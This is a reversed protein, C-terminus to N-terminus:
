ASLRKRGKLRRARLVARGAKDSMRHRFGHRRARRLNNPQYTRKVADESVQPHGAPASTPARHGAAISRTGQLRAPSGARACHEPL